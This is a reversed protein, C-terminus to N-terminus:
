ATEEWGQQALWDRWAAQLNNLFALQETDAFHTPTLEHKGQPLPLNGPVELAIHEVAIAGLGRNTGFGLPIREQALERLTLILLALAAGRQPADPPLRAPDVELVLEEWEGEHPELLSYLAHEAAGGTWRDIAVRTAHRLGHHETQRAEEANLLAQLDGRTMAHDTCHCDAVALAGLGPLWDANGTNGDDNKQEGPAGFLEKVLPIALHELFGSRGKALEALDYKDEDLVTRMIREAMDRLAGKISSGPIVRALKGDNRGTFLPLMDVAIGAADAKVMIPLVPRWKVRITLPATNNVTIGGTQFDAIDFPKASDGKKLFALIGERSSLEQESVRADELKMRGMGRTKAAGVAIHGQVLADIMLALRAKHEEANAPPLEAELRFKMRTGTPLVQRTYKIREAAAGSFRDIGVGDRVEPAASGDEIIADEVYVRSAEAAKGEDTRMKETEPGFLAETSPEGFARRFWARLAGTLSTGPIYYEGAGNRALLMDVDWGTEVGGVHLPATTELTGTFIIRSSLPRSM